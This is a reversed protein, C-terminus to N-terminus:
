MRLNLGVAHFSWLSYVVGLTPRLLNSKSSADHSEAAGIQDPFIAGGYIGVLLRSRGPTEWYVPAGSMVPYAAPEVLQIGLNRASWSGVVFRSLAIAEIRNEPGSSFGFPFGFITLRDGISPHGRFDHADPLRVSLAERYEKPLEVPLRM